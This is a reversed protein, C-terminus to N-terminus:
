KILMMKRTQIFSGASLRYLYVGSAFMSGDFSVEYRGVTLQQNILEEVLRGNLDYIRLRVSANEPLSFAFTTTPNFPNPYNQELSYESIVTEKDAAMKFLVANYSAINSYMSEKNTNDRAKIKYHVWWSSPYAFTENDTYSTVPNGGSYANITAILSYGSTPPAPNYNSARYIKYKGGSIMDPETNAEWNLVVPQYTGSATAILNVPKAPPADEPNGVYFKVNIVNGSQNLVEMGFDTQNGSWNNTHPNSWPSIVTTLNPKFTGEIDAGMFFDACSINDEEDAWARLWGSYGSQLNDTYNKGDANVSLQRFAPFNANYCETTNFPNEWNWQGDSTKVRITNGDNYPKEQHIIFIGKDNPNITADDYNTLQQHNEFYFYEWPEGSIPNTVGGPPHYRYAVGTTIFDALPANPSTVDIANIWRLRDREYANACIKRSTNSALIGHVIHQSGYPHYRGLLWHGFEHVATQLMKRPWYNWPYQCTVGSGLSYNTSAPYGFEIRVDDETDFGTVYGMSAEGLYNFHFRRWYMIIMDVIGDSTNTHNFDSDKRWNDYASFNILPDVVDRLVDKNARGYEWSSYDTSPKLAEVYIAEGVLKLKGLSMQDFYTTLNIEEQSNVTEDADIFDEMGDPPQGVDWYNHPLTDDPFSVFVILAKIVGESTIYIGGRQSTDMEPDSNKATYQTGCEEEQAYVNIWLVSILILALCYRFMLM